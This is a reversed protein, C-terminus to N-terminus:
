FHLYQESWGETSRVRPNPSVNRFRRRSAAERSHSKSSQSEVGGYVFIIDEITCYLRFYIQNCYIFPGKRTAAERLARLEVEGDVVYVYEEYPSCCRFVTPKSRSCIAQHQWFITERDQPTINGGSRRFFTAWALRSSLRSPAIRPCSTSAATNFLDMLGPFCLLCCIPRTALALSATSLMSLRHHTDHTSHQCM